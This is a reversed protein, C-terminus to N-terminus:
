GRLGYFGIRDDEAVLAKMFGHTESLTRTRLVVAMPIKFLRYAIGQNAAETENLGIRTLEPDTFM